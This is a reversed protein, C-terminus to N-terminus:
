RKPRVRAARSRAKPLLLHMMGVAFTCAIAFQMLRAGWTGSNDPGKLIALGFIIMTANYALLANGGHAGGKVIQQGFAIGILFSILALTPLSPVINLLYYGLV